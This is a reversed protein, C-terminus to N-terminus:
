TFLLLDSEPRRDNMKQPNLLTGTSRKQIAQIDRQIMIQGATHIWDHGTM